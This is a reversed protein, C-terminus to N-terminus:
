QETAILGRYPTVIQVAEKLHTSKGNKLFHDYCVKSQSTAWTKELTRSNKSAEKISIKKRINLWKDRNRGQIFVSLDCLEDVTGTITYPQNAFMPPLMQSYPYLSAKANSASPIVEISVNKVLPEHLDKILRVLKRPFGANTDSYLLKGGTAYSLLDLLVLNNGKGAAATYFNALGEYKKAWESIANRQKQGSLMTNGDTILIVSHLEDPSMKEPLMKDIASYVETAAFHTKGKENELFTEAMEITKPTVPLTRDSLKVVNRDFIVINFHDKENLAVLSRQVAKKFRSFKHKEISSSRDILFYFNQGLPESQLDLSPQVTLSFLYKEGDPAPMLSLEVEIDDQYELNSALEEIGYHELQPLRKEALSRKVWQSRLYDVSNPLVLKPVTSEQLQTFMQEESAEASTTEYNPTCLKVLSVAFQPTIGNQTHLPLATPSFQETTMTFDDKFPEAIAPTEDSFRHDVFDVSAYKETKYQFPSEESDEELAFDSLSSEQQPDFLPPLSAAFEEPGKTLVLEEERLKPPCVDLKRAFHVEAEQKSSEQDAEVSKAKAVNLGPHSLINSAVASNLSEELAKEMKEVLLDEEEKPVITHPSSKLLSMKEDTEFAPPYFYLFWVAGIHIGISVVLCFILLNKRVKGFKM